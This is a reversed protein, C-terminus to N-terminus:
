APPPRVVPHWRTPTLICDLRVDHPEVPIEDTLQWDFCVGCKFGRAEALLRDYFGKGRGLRWGDLTFGIGPVLVFDLRNLNFIPRSASPERVGFTGPTLDGARGTVECAFYRGHEEFYRPLTVVKGSSVLEDVLPLLDPEDALPAYLLISRMGRWLDQNKLLLQIKASAVARDEISFGKARARLQRRLATKKEAFDASM